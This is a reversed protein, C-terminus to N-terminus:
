GRVESSSKYLENWTRFHERLTSEDTEVKETSQENEAANPTFLLITTDRMNLQVNGRARCMYGHFM